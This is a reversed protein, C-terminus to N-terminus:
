PAPNRRMKDQKMVVGGRINYCDPSAQPKTNIKTSRKKSKKFSDKGEAPNLVQEFYNWINFLYRYMKM